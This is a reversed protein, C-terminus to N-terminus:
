DVQLERVLRTFEEGRHTFDRFQDTSPCAPSLLITDGPKSEEICAALAAQLTAARLCRFDPDCNRIAIQLKDAVAGFVVAGQALRGVNDALQTFDAQADAGGLLLWIPRDMAKLAAITATHSTSKSDNYFRRGAIEAVLQLRHSLGAFDALSRDIIAEHVGCESAAAAACSANTRNHQGPLKLPPLKTFDWPSVCRQGTLTRWDGVERDRTNLVVFPVNGAGDGQGRGGPSLTSQLLRQKSTVYHEWSGHWDLHNPSCNTVIAGHPWRAENSLWHLQFSSLELVVIDEPQMQPLDGLLSHGINGGLWTRRGATRLIAALMAATTSKGVTGTVGIVRAPCADLFLEIESSIKTGAQRAIEVFSNGPRVAPNVVVLDAARFGDDCHQGLTFKAIPVDHLQALSEALLKEATLDTVTVIAGAQACYRAAAVGGGHRGLGLITVKQGRLQVDNGAAHRRLIM